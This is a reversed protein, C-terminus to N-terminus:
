SFENSNAFKKASTVFERDISCLVASHMYARNSERTEVEGTSTCAASRVSPSVEITEWDTVFLRQAGEHPPM